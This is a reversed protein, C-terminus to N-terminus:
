RVGVRIKKAQGRSYTRRNSWWHQIGSKFSKLNIMPPPPLTRNTTRHHRQKTETHPPQTSRDRALTLHLPSASILNRNKRVSTLYQKVQRDYKHFPYITSTQFREEIESYYVSFVFFFFDFLGKTGQNMAGDYKYGPAGGLKTSGGTGLNLRRLMCEFLNKINVSPSM